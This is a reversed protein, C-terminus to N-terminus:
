VARVRWVGLRDRYYDWAAADSGGGGATNDCCLACRGLVTTVRASVVVCGSVGLVTSTPLASLAAHARHQLGTHLRGRVASEVVVWVDRVVAICV